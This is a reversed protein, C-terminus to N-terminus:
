HAVSCNFILSLPGNIEENFPVSKMGLLSHVCAYSTGFMGM